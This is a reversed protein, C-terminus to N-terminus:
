YGKTNTEPEDRPSGPPEVPSAWWFGIRECGKDGRGNRWSPTPCPFGGSFGLEVDMANPVPRGVSRRRCRPEGRGMACRFYSAGDIRM